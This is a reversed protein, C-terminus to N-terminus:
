NQAQAIDRKYQAFCRPCIGEPRKGSTPQRDAWEFDDEHRGCLTVYEEYCIIASHFPVRESWKKTQGWSLCKTKRRRM